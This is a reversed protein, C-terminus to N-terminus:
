ARSSTAARAKRLTVAFLLVLAVTVVAWVMLSGWQDRAAAHCTDEIAQRQEDTVEGGTMRGLGSGWEFVSGCWIRGEGFAPDPSIAEVTSMGQNYTACSAAGLLVAAGYSVKRWTSARVLRLGLHQLNM